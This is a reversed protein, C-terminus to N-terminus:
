LQNRRILWVIWVAQLYLVSVFEARASVRWNLLNQDKAAPLMPGRVDQNNSVNMQRSGASQVPRFQLEADKQNKKQGLKKTARNL